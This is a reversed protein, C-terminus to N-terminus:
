KTLNLSVSYKILSVIVHKVFYAMPTLYRLAKRSINNRRSAVKSIYEQSVFQLRERKTIWKTETPRKFTWKIWMLVSKGSRCLIYTLRSNMLSQNWTLFDKDYDFIISKFLIRSLRNLRSNFSQEIRAARRSTPKIVITCKSIREVLTIVASKYQRRIITDCILHWFKYLRKWM